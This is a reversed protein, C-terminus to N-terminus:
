VLAPVGVHREHATRTFAFGQASSPVPRYRSSDVAVPVQGWSVLAFSGPQEVRVKLPHGRGASDHADAVVLLHTLIRVPRVPLSGELRPDANIAATSVIGASITKMRRFMPPNTLM